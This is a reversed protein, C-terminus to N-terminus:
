MQVIFLHFFISQFMDFDGIIACTVLFGNLENLNLVTFAFTCHNRDQSFETRRACLNCAFSSSKSIQFNNWLIDM